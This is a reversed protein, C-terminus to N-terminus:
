FGISLAITNLNGFVGFKQFAYNFSLAAFGEFHYRLGAGLTLGEQGKDNSLPAQGGKFISQYGGRIFLTNWWGVEAGMNISEFDDNPRLADVAM